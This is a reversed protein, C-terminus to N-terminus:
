NDYIHGKTIDYSNTPQQNTPQNAPEYIRGHGNTVYLANLSYNHLRNLAEVKDETSLKERVSTNVGQTKLENLIATIHPPPPTIAM